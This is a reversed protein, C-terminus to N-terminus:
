RRPWAVGNRYAYSVAQARDRAGIKALLHNVHSKVTAESVVLRAAIEANSLGEAILGLVEAERPTLGGPLPGAPQSPPHFPPHPAAQGAPPPPPPPPTVAIADVLHHQVAPDIVAQGSVVQLLAKQIEAGGADKTLYGRAGARLAEIVSRDDAYTTLVIVKIDPQQERLKRTAEVGDCRPMRLDMLVVDPRLEAAREVAEDGDAAAGVVEIQPLLGLLLVLGDRVVRQDDALLVRVPGTVGPGV